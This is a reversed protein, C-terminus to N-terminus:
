AAAPDRGDVTGTTQLVRFRAFCEEAYWGETATRTVAGRHAAGAYAYATLAREQDWLSFTGQLGIPAEGIGMALRLGWADQVAASVPPVARWFTRAKAATLRARTIAAVPGVDGGAALPRFPQRGSWTGRVRVPLLDARWREDAIRRWAAAVPSTREFTVLDGPDSWVALLGWRRLDADRVTFTRGDGTGLLKWFRCGPTAALHRRDLAMRALAAPVRSAGVGFLHMTVLPPAATLYAGAPQWPSM